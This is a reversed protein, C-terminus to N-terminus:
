KKCKKYFSCNGCVPSLDGIELRPLTKNIKRSSKVISAAMDPSAVRLGESLMYLYTKSTGSLSALLKREESSAKKLWRRLLRM